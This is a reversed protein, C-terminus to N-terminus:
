HLGKQVMVERGKDLDQESKILLIVTLLFKCHGHYSTDAETEFKKKFDKTLFFPRGLAKRGLTM